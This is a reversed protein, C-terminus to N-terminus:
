GQSRIDQLGRDRYSGDDFEIVADFRGNIYCQSKAGPISIPASKVFKEKLKVIGPPLDPSIESTPKGLYFDSTLNAMKTFIGPFPGRLVINHKVKLYFCYKCGDWSFTLDSPSIKYM